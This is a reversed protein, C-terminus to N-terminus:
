GIMKLAGQFEMIGLYGLPVLFEGVAFAIIPFMALFGCIMRKKALLSEMAIHRLRMFNERESILDSFAESM